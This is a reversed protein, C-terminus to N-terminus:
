KYQKKKEEEMKKMMELMQPKQKMFAEQNMWRMSNADAMAEAMKELDHGMKKEYHKMMKEKMLKMWAADALKMMMDFMMEEKSMEHGCGCGKSPMDCCKDMSMGSGCGCMDSGCTM